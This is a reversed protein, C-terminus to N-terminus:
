LLNHCPPLMNKAPPLLKVNFNYGYQKKLHLNVYAEVVSITSHYDDSPIDSVAELIIEDIEDTYSTCIYPIIYKKGTFDINNVCCYRLNGNVVGLYGMQRQQRLIPSISSRFVQRFINM